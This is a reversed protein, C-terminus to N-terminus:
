QIKRGKYHYTPAEILPKPDLTLIAEGNPKHYLMLNFKNQDWWLQRYLCAVIESQTYPLNNGNGDFNTVEVRNSTTRFMDITIDVSDSGNEEKMRYIGELTPCPELFSSYYDRNTIVVTKTISDYGDDNPLCIYNPKKQVVLTVQIAQGTFDSSFYRVVSKTDLIENGIYWRYTANEAKATFAINKERFTSDTISRKEWDYGYAHIEEIDFDASTEKACSCDKGKMEPQVKKCAYQTFVCIGLAIFILQKM